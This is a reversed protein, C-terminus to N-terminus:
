AGCITANSPELIQHIRSFSFAFYCSAGAIEFFSQHTIVYLLAAFGRASFFLFFRGPVAYPFSKPKEIHLFSPCRVSNSVSGAAWVIFLIPPPLFHSYRYFLSSALSLPLGPTFVLGPPAKRLQSFCADFFTECWNPVM